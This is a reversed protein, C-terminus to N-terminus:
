SGNMIAIPWTNWRRGKKKKKAERVIRHLTAPKIKQAEEKSM